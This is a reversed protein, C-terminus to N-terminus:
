FFLKGLIMIILPFYLSFLFYSFFLKGNSVIPYKIILKEYRSNYFILFYNVLVVPLIFLILASLFNNLISNSFVNFEIKYLYSKLIKRQFVAIVFGINLAMAMSMLVLSYVKWSDKFKPNVSAKAILDMWIKYYLNSM